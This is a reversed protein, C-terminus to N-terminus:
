STTSFTASSISTTAMTSAGVALLKGRCRRARSSECSRLRSAPDAKSLVQHACMSGACESNARLAELTSGENVGGPASGCSGLLRQQSSSPSDSPKISAM